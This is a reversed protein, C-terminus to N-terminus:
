MQNNLTNETGQKLGNQITTNNIDAIDGTDQNEILGASILEQILNLENDGYLM